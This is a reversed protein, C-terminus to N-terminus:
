GILARRSAVYYGVAAILSGVGIFAMVGDSTGTKPLEPPTTVCEADNEHGPTTCDPKCGKDNEHGPTTCDYCDAGKPLHEKGPVECPACRSDGKPYTNGDPAECVEESITFKVKCSDATLTKEENNIKVKVSLKATYEGAKAYTHNATMSDATSTVPTAATGDGFDIVYGLISAGGSVSAGGTFTRDLETGTIKDVTLGECKATPTEPLKEIEFPKKCNASVPVSKTQGDVLVSGQAEVTYKGVTNQTYTPNAETLRTLEKGSEDKVVYTVGKFTVGKLGFKSGFKFTTRNIQTVSLQDCVYSPAEKITICVKCAPATIDKTTSGLQVKVTLTATYSKAADAYTHTASPAPTTSSKGDGFNYTYSLVKAGGSVTAKVEFKYETRSIPTAKLYTCVAAPVPPKPKPKATVPNGCSKIIAFKFQGNVMKIMASQGEDGFTSTSTIAATTGAIPTGGLNRAADRAATAVITGSASSGLTVNGNKWVIGDVMGTVDAKNIGFAAYVKTHDKYKGDANFKKQFETADKAGCYMVAYKDCDPSTDVKANATLQVVGLTAVSLLAVAFLILKKRM